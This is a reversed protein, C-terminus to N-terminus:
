NRRIEALMRDVMALRPSEPAASCFFLLHEQAEATQNLRLLLSGLLFRVELYDPDIALAGQLVAVATDNEGLRMLTQGLGARAELHDEEMELVMFYRERAASDDGIKALLEALQFNIGADAGGYGLATRYCTLAERWCGNQEQRWAQECLATINTDMNKQFLRKEEASLAQSETTRMSSRFPDPTETTELMETLETSIDFFSDDDSDFQFFKQGKPDFLEGNKNFLLTKKNDALTLHLIIRGVDSFKSKIEAIKSALQEPKIGAVFFLKLQRAALLEETDFYALKGIQRAACLLKYRFHWQRVTQVPVDILEAIMAATYLLAPSDPVRDLNLRHWFQTETLIELQGSEFTKRTTEDFQEPLGLWDTGLRQAEGVVILDVGQHLNHAVKAGNARALAEADRRSFGATKGLFFLHRDALVNM